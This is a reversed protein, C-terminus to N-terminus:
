MLIRGILNAAFALRPGLYRRVIAIDEERAVKLVRLMAVYVAGGIIMYLPLLFKSYLLMQALLVAGAMVTGAVLSKWVAENDIRLKLRRKLVLVTAATVAVMGVGRAIAAGSMGLLPLLAYATVLSIGVSASTIVSATGTEGRALLMPTLVTGVLTFAFVGSLLMLPEAGELYAQGVFLTLAPKAAALLGLALPVTVLAVYRSAMRLARDLSEREVSSHMASYTPLLTSAIAATIGALVNFATITANYVGLTALPVFVLLLARDFWASAFTVANSVSLPWSFRMLKTLPFRFIPRGVLSVVYITYSSAAVFDAIVWAIVLGVFDQMLVIVLIILSQRILTNIIGIVATEKFRRLGLMTGTLAPLLGSYLVVDLALVQFLIAYTQQGLMEIALTDAGLFVILGAPAALFLTLRVTQYFISAAVQRGGSQLNESIFKTAAQPFAQAAVLQALGNVLLLVAMIGMEDATILRALIAFSVAMAASAVINQVIIYSAGRAM